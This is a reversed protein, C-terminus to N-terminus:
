GNRQKQPFGRYREAFEPNLVPDSILNDIEEVGAMFGASYIERADAKRIPFHHPLPHGAIGAKFIRLTLTMGHEFDSLASM